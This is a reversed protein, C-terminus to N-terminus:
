ETFYGYDPEEQPQPASLFWGGSAGNPSPHFTITLPESAPHLAIRTLGNAAPQWAAAFATVLSDDPLVEAKVLADWAAKMRNDIDASLSMREVGMIMVCRHPYSRVQQRRMAAVAMALWDAYAKTRVRGKGPVNKFLVNTSPPTPIEFSVPATSNALGAAGQGQSNGATTLRSLARTPLRSSSSAGSASSKDRPLLNAVTM